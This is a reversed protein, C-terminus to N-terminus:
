TGNIEARLRAQLIAILFRVPLTTDGLGLNCEDCMAALNEDHNLERETLGAALGDQVSLLHGVHLAGTEPGKGCLECHGTARLLIRTRQKPKIGNHVTTTTRPRKGTETRPANYNFTDCAACRVVDQAGTEIIYGMLNHCLRCPQRM